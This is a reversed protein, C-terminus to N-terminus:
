APPALWRQLADRCSELHALPCCEDVKHAMAPDGPGFNVAPMGLESFRAVDTWGYKARPVGGVARVFDATAPRDLGPRAASSLDSVVLEWDPLWNRLQELAQDATKDPAFRYNVQVTCWDPVVNPALGGSIMTANVGERYVLGDVPVEGVEISRVRQLVDAMDHIANHGLWGRASHAAVGTTTIDVRITGQCGGEIQAGTPEMLVALDIGAFWDPHNATLRGLGNSIVEIEECDYFVWTIDRNPATLRRALWVMVAVGGKMDCSGRGHVVIGQPGTTISSPLNGAVPVTDLHGAILVREARGLNTRALVADGDRVLELHACGRLAEEVADALERENRSVSEIDVISRFLDLLNDTPLAM